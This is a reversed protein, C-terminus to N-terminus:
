GLKSEIGLRIAGDVVTVTAVVESKVSGERGPGTGVAVLSKCSGPVLVPEGGEVAPDHSRIMAGMEVGGAPLVDVV